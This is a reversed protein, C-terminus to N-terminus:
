FLISSLTTAMDMFKNINELGKAFDGTEYYSYGLLRYMFPNQNNCPLAKELEVVAKKYDKTELIYEM